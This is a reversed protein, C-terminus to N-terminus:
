CRWGLAAFRDAYRALLSELLLAAMGAASKVNQVEEAKGNLERRFRKWPLYIRRTGWM